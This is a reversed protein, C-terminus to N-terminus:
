LNNRETSKSLTKFSFNNLGFTRIGVINKTFPQIYSPIILYCAHLLTQYIRDIKKKRFRDITFLYINQPYGVLAFLTM